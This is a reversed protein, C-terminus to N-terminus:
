GINTEVTTLIFEKKELLYLTKLFYNFLKYTSVIEDIDFPKAEASTYGVVFLIFLGSLRCSGMKM